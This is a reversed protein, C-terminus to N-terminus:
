EAIKLRKLTNVYEIKVPDVVPEYALSGLYKKEEEHWTQLVDESPLNFVMKATAVDEELKRLKTFAKQAKQM